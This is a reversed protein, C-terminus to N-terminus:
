LEVVKPCATGANTKSATYSCFTYWMHQVTRLLTETSVVWRCPDIVVTITVKHHLVQFFLGRRSASQLEPYM